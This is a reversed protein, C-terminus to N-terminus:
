SLNHHFLMPSGEEHNTPNENSSRASVKTEQLGMFLECDEEMIVQCFKHLQWWSMSTMDNQSWSSAREKVKKKAQIYTINALPNKPKLSSIITVEHGAMALIEMVAHNINFHSFADVMFVGLIKASDTMQLM